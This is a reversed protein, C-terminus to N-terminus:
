FIWIVLLLFFLLAVAVVAIVKAHSGKSSSSLSELDIGSRHVPTQSAKKLAKDKQDITKALPTSDKVNLLEDLLVKGTAPRENLDKEMMKQILLSLRLSVTSNVRYLPKVDHRLKDMFLEELSTGNFPNQGSLLEYFAVGLSYIDASPLVEQKSNFQEPPMYSPTGVASGDTTVKTVDQDNNKVIGFDMLIARGNKDVMVNAPKIDRHVLGESHILALAESLQKIYSFVEDEDFAEENEVLFKLDVGDILESIICYKNEAYSFCKYIKLINPHSFRALTRAEQLFRKLAVEDHKSVDFLKVAVDKEMEKHWAKYVTGFGGEGIKELLKLDDFEIGQSIQHPNFDTTVKLLREVSYFDDPVDMTQDDHTM